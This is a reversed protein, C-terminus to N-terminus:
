QLQQQYSDVDDEEDDKFLPNHVLVLEYHQRLNKREIANHLLRNQTQLLTTNAQSVELCTV